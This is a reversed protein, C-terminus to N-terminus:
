YITIKMAKAMAKLGEYSTNENDCANSYLNMAGRVGQESQAIVHLFEIEKECSSLAPFMLQMDAKTIQTTHRIETLRTRNTIQNFSAKGRGSRNTVTEVNGIFIIGLEPNSDFLARISEITKIPLHQAEDIILVKKSGQLQEDLALWMDDKRGIPLKFRKCLLKLFATTSVLCPNVSVYIASAPYDQVYKRAAKTKGIGADGCEIALGGKLHCIRITDYVQKSISTPVFDPSVSSALSEADEKTTFLEHLRAELKEVSGNYTGKRYTSLAGASYDILEAAKQQGGVETIYDELKRQLEADYTKEATM